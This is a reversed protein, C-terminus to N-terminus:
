FPSKKVIDHLIEYYAQFHSEYLDAWSALVVKGEKSDLPTYEAINTLFTNVYAGDPSMGGYLFTQRTSILGTEERLERAACEKFTEGEDWKGGPLIIGRGKTCVIAVFKNGPQPVLSICGIVM